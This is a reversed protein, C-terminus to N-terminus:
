FDHRIGAGIARVAVNSRSSDIGDRDIFAQLETRKSLAYTYALQWRRREGTRSALVDRQMVNLVVAHANQSWRAGLLWYDVDRRSTANSNFTDRGVLVYPEITGLDYRLGAQWKHSLENPLLGGPRTDKGYGIGGRV